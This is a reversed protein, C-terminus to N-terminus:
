EDPIENELLAKLRALKSGWIHNIEQLWIELESLPEPTLVYRKDRGKQDIKVLGAEELINLHKILGPRSIPYEKALQTATKPSDKALDLLLQRRTPDALATFITVDKVDLSKDEIDTQLYRDGIM